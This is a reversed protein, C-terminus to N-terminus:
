KLKDIVSQKLKNLGDKFGITYESKGNYLDISSITKNILEFIEESTLTNM